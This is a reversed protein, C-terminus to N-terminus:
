NGLLLKLIEIPILKEDIKKEFQLSEFGLEEIAISQEILRSM